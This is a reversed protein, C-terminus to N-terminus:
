GCLNSQAIAEPLVRGIASEQRGVDARRCGKQSEKQVQGDGRGVCGAGTGFPALKGGRVLRSKTLMKSLMSKSNSFKTKNNSGTRFEVNRSM